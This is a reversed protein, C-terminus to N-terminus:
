QRGVEVASSAPAPLMRIILSALMEALLRYRWERSPRGCARAVLAPIVHDQQVHYRGALQFRAPGRHRWPERAVDSVKFSVGAAQLKRAPRNSSSARARLM